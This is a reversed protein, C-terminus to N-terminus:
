IKLNELCKFVGWEGEPFVIVCTLGNFISGCNVLIRHM